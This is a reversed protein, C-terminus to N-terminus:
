RSASWLESRSDVWDALARAPVRVCKGIRVVQLEGSTMLSYLQTRGIGLREAAQEITLLLPEPSGPVVGVSKTGQAPDLTRIIMGLLEAVLRQKFSGM